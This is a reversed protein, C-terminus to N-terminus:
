IVSVSLKTADIENRKGPPARTLETINNLHHRGDRLEQDLM